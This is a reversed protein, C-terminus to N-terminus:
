SKRRMFKVVEDFPMGLSSEKLLGMLYSWKKENRLIELCEHGHWTLFFVYEGSERKQMQYLLGGDVMIMAHHWITEQDAMDDVRNEGAQEARLLIQRVLNMDRKV